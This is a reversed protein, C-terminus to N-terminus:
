TTPAPTGFRGPVKHAERPAAPAEHYEDVLRWPIHVTRGGQRLALGQEEIDIRVGLAQADLDSTAGFGEKTPFSVSKSFIARTIM